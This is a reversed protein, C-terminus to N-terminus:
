PGYLAEFEAYAGLLRELHELDRAFSQEALSLAERREHEAVRECTQCMDLQIPIYRGCGCRKQQGFAFVDSRPRRARHPRRVKSRGPRM